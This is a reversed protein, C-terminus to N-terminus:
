IMQEPVVGTCCLTNDPGRLVEWIGQGIFKILEAKVNYFNAIVGGLSELSERICAACVLLGRQLEILCKSNELSAVMAFALYVERMILDWHSVVLCGAM